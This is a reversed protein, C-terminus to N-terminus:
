PVLASYLAELDDMEDITMLTNYLNESNRKGLVPGSLHLFKNRLLQPPIPREPEGLPLAISVRKEGGSIMNAKLTIDRATQPLSDDIVVSVRRALDIIEPDNLGKEVDEPMTGGTALALAASFPTSLQAAMVTKLSQNGTQDFLQKSGHVEISKVQGPDFGPEKRIKLAAEIPAHCFRCASYPKIGMELIHWRNGLRNSVADPDFRDSMVKGFGYDGELIEPSGTFGKSALLAALIGSQASRGPHFRKAMSGDYLFQFLGAAQTGALGMANVMQSVDLNLLLSAAMAAGFGGVTATTHFGKLRHEPSVSLAIRITTEYGAAVAFLLDKGRAGVKEGVALAAPLVCAGAHLYTTRHTDDMEICHTFTGNVLAAMHSPAKEPYGWITSERAGGSELVIELAPRGEAHVSGALGVGITDSILERTKQKVELPLDETKLSLFFGALKATLTTETM